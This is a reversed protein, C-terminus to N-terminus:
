EAYIKMHIIPDIKNKHMKNESTKKLELSFKLYGLPIKDMKSASFQLHTISIRANVSDSPLWALISQFFEACGM